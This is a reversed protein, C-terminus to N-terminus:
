AADLENRCVDALPDIQRTFAAWLREAEIARYDHVIINRMGYIAPWEIEPHRAKLDAALKVSMEGIVAFRFATLDIEDISALFSPMSLKDLRRHLHGIM